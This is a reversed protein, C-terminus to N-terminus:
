ARVPPGRPQAAFPLAVPLATARSPMGERTAAVVLPPAPLPPEGGALAHGSAAAVACLPCLICDRARHPTSPSSGGQLAGAHCIPATQSLQALEIMQPQPVIVGVAIQVALALLVFPLGFLTTDRSHM